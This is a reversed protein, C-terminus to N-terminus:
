SGPDFQAYMFRLLRVVSSFTILEPKSLCSSTTAINGDSRLVYFIDGSKLYLCTNFSYETTKFDIYYKLKFHIYVIKLNKLYSKFVNKM